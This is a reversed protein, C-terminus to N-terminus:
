TSFKVILLIKKGGAFMSAAGPDATVHNTMVVAINFEEALKCLKSLFYGLRQQRDALMGRGTYDVRFLAMVSDIILLSYKEEVMKGAIASLAEIQADHQSQYL